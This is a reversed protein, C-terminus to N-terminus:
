VLSFTVVPPTSANVCYFLWNDIINGAVDESRDKNFVQYDTKRPVAPVGYPFVTPLLHWVPIPSM